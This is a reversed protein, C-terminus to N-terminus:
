KAGGKPLKGLWKRVHETVAQLREDGIRQRYRAAMNSESATHGMIADVAVQDAIEGAVTEFTRRLDYFTRAPNIKSLKKAHDFVGTVRYGNKRPTIFSKGRAGIFCLESEGKTNAHEIAANVAEITEAWLPVRRSVANKVRAWTLWGDQIASRPLSACDENGLGCQLGLLLMAKLNVNAVAYLARFDEPTFTQDGKDNRLKRFADAKPKKFARGFNPREELKHDEYATDFMSRIQTIRKSQGNANYRKALAMRVQDFRLPGCLKAPLTKGVTAMLFQATEFYEDYTKQKLDGVKVLTEKTGIWHNCVDKVTVTTSGTCSLPDYAPPEQGQDIFLKDHQWKEKSYAGDPDDDCKYFYYFRKQYKKYWYGRPHRGLEPRKKKTSDAM